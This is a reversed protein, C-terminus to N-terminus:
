GSNDVTRCCLWFLLHSIAIIFFLTYLLLHCISQNKKKFILIGNKVSKFKVNDVTPEWAKNLYRLYCHVKLQKSNKYEGFNSSYIQHM